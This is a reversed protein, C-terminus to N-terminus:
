YMIHFPRADLCALGMPHGAVDREVTSTFTSRIEIFENSWSVARTTPATQRNVTFAPKLREGLTRRVRNDGSGLYIQIRRQLHSSKM